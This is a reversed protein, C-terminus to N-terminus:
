ADPAGQKPAKEESISNRIAEAKELEEIFVKQNSIITELKAIEQCRQGYLNNLEKVRTMFERIDSSLMDRSENIRDCITLMYVGIEGPDSLGKQDQQPKPKQGEM